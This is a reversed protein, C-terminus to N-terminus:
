GNPFFKEKMKKYYGNGEEETIKNMFVEVVTTLKWTPFGKENLWPKPRYIEFLPYRPDFYQWTAENLGNCHTPDQWFGTSGPYPYVLALQGGPKMIRWLENIFDITLWPKIHEIIHSGIIAMCCDDPLPYPFKELDWVIDVGELKRKDLGIFNEQKNEGCGIDLRIGGNKKVLECGEQYTTWDHQFM